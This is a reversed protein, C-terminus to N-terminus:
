VGTQIKILVAWQTNPKGQQWPVSNIGTRIDVLVWLDDEASSSDLGKQIEAPLQETGSAQNQMKWHQVEHSEQQTVQGAQPPGESQCSQKAAYRGNQM